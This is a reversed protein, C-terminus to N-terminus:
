ISRVIHHQSTYVQYFFEVNHMQTVTAEQFFCEAIVVYPSESQLKIEEFSNCANHHTVYSASQMNSHNIATHSLLHRQTDM